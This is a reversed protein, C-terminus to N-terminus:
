AHGGDEVIVEFVPNAKAFALIQIVDFGVLALEDVGLACLATIKAEIAVPVCGVFQFVVDLNFRPALRSGSDMPEPLATVAFAAERKRQARQSAKKTTASM